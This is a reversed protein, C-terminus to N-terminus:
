AALFELEFLARFKEITKDDLIRGWWRFKNELIDRYHDTFNQVIISVSYGHKQAFLVRQQRKQKYDERAALCEAETKERWEQEKMRLFVQWLLADRENRYDGAARHLAHDMEDRIRALDKAACDFALTNGSFSANVGNRYNEFFLQLHEPVDHSLEFFFRHQGNELHEVRSRAKIELFMAVAPMYPILTSGETLFIEPPHLCDWKEPELEYM